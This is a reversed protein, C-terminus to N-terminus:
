KQKCNDAVTRLTEELETLKKEIEEFKIEIKKM